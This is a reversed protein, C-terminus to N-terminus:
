EEFTVTALTSPPDMWIRPLSGAEGWETDSNFVSIRFTTALDSFLSRAISFEIEVDGNRVYESTEAIADTAKEITWPWDEETAEFMTAGGGVVEGFDEVVYEVLYELGPTDYGGWFDWGTAGDNDKDFYLQLVPGIGTNGKVYFYLFAADYAVKLEKLTGNAADPDSYVATYEAWDGFTGDIIAGPKTLTFDDSFSDDGGENVAKLTVSFDGGDTYTHVPNEETSTNGDGFDWEYSDAGTSLNEFTVTLVDITYIFDATPPDVKKCGALILAGAFFLFLFKSYSKM